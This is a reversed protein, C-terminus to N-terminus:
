LKAQILGNYGGEILVDDKYIQPVTNHGQELMWQKAVDNEEINIEEFSIDRSELFRKAMTCYNCRNKSYIKLM